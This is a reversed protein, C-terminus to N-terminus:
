LLQVREVAETSSELAGREGRWKRIVTKHDSVPYVTDIKSKHRKKNMCGSERGSEAEVRCRKIQLTRMIVVLRRWERDKCRGERGQSRTGRIARRSREPMLDRPRHQQNATSTVGEEM